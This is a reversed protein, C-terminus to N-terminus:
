ERNGDKKEEMIKQISKLHNHEGNAITGLIKKNLTM